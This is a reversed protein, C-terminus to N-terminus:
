YLADCQVFSQIDTHSTCKEGPDSYPTCLPHENKKPKKGGNVSIKPPEPDSLGYKNVFFQEVIKRDVGSLEKAFIAIELIYGKFGNSGGPVTNGIIIESNTAVDGTYSDKGNPVGSSSAGAAWGLTSSNM